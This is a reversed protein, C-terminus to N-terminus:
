PGPGFADAAQGATAPAPEQSPAPAPAPAPVPTPAPSPTVSPPPSASTASTADAVASSSETSAEAHQARRSAIEAKRARKRARRAARRRDKQRTEARRRLVARRHARREEVLKMSVAQSNTVDGEPSDQTSSGGGTLTVVMFVLAAVGALVALAITAKVPQDGRGTLQAIQEEEPASAWAELLEAEEEDRQGPEFLPVLDDTQEAAENPEIPMEEEGDDSM